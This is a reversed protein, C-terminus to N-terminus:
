ATADHKAEQEGAVKKAKTAEKNAKLDAIRRHAYQRADETIPEVPNGDLDYRHTNNLVALQYAYHGVFMRFWRKLRRNAETPDVGFRSILDEHIGIKLPKINNVQFIAPLQDEAGEPLGLAELLGAVFRKRPHPPLTFVRDARKVDKGHPPETINKKGTDTESSM